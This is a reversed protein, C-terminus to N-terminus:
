RYGFNMRINNEANWSCEYNMEGGLDLNIKELSM